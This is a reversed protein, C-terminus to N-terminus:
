QKIPKRESPKQLEYEWLASGPKATIAVSLGETQLSQGSARVRVNTDLNRLRYTAEPRLGKLILRASEYPSQPRRLVVAIGKGLDPRDLQYAMWVDPAQSYPTLPYYDGYYYPRLGLYQALTQRAWAFPFDPRINEAPADGSVWWNLCLASCM